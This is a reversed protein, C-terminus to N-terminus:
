MSVPLVSVYVIDISKIHHPVRCSTHSGVHLTNQLKYYIIVELILLFMFLTVIINYEVVQM